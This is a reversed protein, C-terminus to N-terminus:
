LKRLDSQKVSLKANLTNADAKSTQLRSQAIRLDESIAKKEEKLKDYSQQWKNVEAAKDCDLQKMLEGYRLTSLNVQERHADECDSRLKEIEERHESELHHMAEAHGREVMTLNEQHESKSRDLADQLPQQEKAITNYDERLHDSTDQLQRKEEALNNYDNQLRDSAERAAKERTQHEEVKEKLEGHQEELRVLDDSARPDVRQADYLSSELDKVQTNLAENKVTLDAVIAASIGLEEQKSHSQQQAEIRQGEAEDLRGQCQRASDSSIKCPLFEPARRPIFIM